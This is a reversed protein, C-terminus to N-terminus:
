WAVGGDLSTEEAYGVEAPSMDQGGAGGETDSREAGRCRRGRGGRRTVAARAPTLLRPREVLEVLRRERLAALEDDVGAAVGGGLLVAGLRGELGAEWVDVQRQDHVVALVM